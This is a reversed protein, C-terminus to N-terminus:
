RRNPCTASEEEEVEESDDLIQKKARKCLKNWSNLVWTSEDLREFLGDRGCASEVEISAM